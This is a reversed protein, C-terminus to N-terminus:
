GQKWLIYLTFCANFFFGVLYSYYLASLAPHYPLFSVTIHSVLPPLLTWNPSLFRLLLYWKVLARFDHSSHSCAFVFNLANGSSFFSFAHASFSPFRAQSVCQNWRALVCSALPFRLCYNSFAPTSLDLFSHYLVSSPGTLEVTYVLPIGLLYTFLLPVCDSSCRLLILESAPHFLSQQSCKQASHPLLPCSNM